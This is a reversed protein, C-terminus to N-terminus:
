VLEEQKIKTHSWWRPFYHEQISLDIWMMQVKHEPVEHINRKAAIECDRIELTLIDLKADFAMAAEAYFAVNTALINTNDVVVNEGAELAHLFDRKCANHADQLKTPSFKYVGNEEMYYDASVIRYKPYKKKAYTSKGSGPAGRLIVVHM